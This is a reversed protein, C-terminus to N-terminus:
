SAREEKIRAIEHGYGSVKISMAAEVASEMGVMILAFVVVERVGEARGMTMGTWDRMTAKGQEWKSVNFSLLCVLSLSIIASIFLIRRSPHYPPLRMTRKNVNKLRHHRLTKNGNVLGGPRTEGLRTEGREPEEIRCASDGALAAFAFLPRITWCSEAISRGQTKRPTEM